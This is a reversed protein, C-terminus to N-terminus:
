LQVTGLRAKAQESLVKYTNQLAYIRYQLSTRHLFFFFNVFSYIKNNERTHM